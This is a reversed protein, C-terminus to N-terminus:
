NTVDATGRSIEIAETGNFYFTHSRNTGAAPAVTAGLTNFTGASFAPASIVGATLNRVVVTFVQGIPMYQPSTTDVSITYGVADTVNVHVVEHRRGDFQRGDLSITAGYTPSYIGATVTTFVPRQSFGQKGHRVTSTADANWLATVVSNYYNGDCETVHSAVLDGMYTKTGGLNCKNGNFIISEVNELDFFRYASNDTGDSDIENDSFNFVNITTAAPTTRTDVITLEFGDQIFTNGKMVVQELSEDTIKLVTVAQTTSAFICRGGFEVPTVSNATGQGDVDFIVPAVSGIRCAWFLSYGIRNGNSRVFSRSFSVHDGGPQCFVNDLVFTQSGSNMELFDTATGENRVGFWELTYGTSDTTIMSSAGGTWVLISAPNSTGFMRFGRYGRITVGRTSLALQTGFAYEGRGLQICGSGSSHAYAEAKKLAAWNADDTTATVHPYDVQVDALSTYTGASIWEAVTHVTGDNFAGFDDITPHERLKDQVTRATKTLGDPLFGVISSGVSSRLYTIFGAVTSWLSGSAGDDSGVLNAGQTAGTGALDVQMVSIDYPDEDMPVSGDSAVVRLRINGAFGHYLVPVAAGASVPYPNSVPTTLDEDSYISVPTTTGAQYVFINAGDSIGNTDIVRNPVYQIRTM